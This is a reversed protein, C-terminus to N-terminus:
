HEPEDETAAPFVGRSLAIMTVEQLSLSLSNCARLQMEHGPRTLMEIMVGLLSTKGCGPSGVATFLQIDHRKKVSQALSLPAHCYRCRVWDFGNDDGCLYCALPEAYQALRYSEMVVTSCRKM